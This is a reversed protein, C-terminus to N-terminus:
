GRFGRNVFIKGLVIAILGLACLMTTGPEPVLAFDLDDLAVDSYYQGGPTGMRQTIAVDFTGLSGFGQGITKGAVETGTSTQFSLRTSTGDSSLVFRYYTDYQWGVATSTTGGGFSDSFQIFRFNPDGFNSGFLSISLFQQNSPNILFIELLGDINSQNAAPVSSDHLALTKFDLTLSGASGNFTQVSGFGQRQFDTMVSTTRLLANGDLSIPTLSDPLGVYNFGGFGTYPAAAWKSSDFTTFDDTFAQASFLPTLAIFAIAAFKGGPGM